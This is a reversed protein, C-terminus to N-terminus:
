ELSLLIMVYKQVVNLAPQDTRFELVFFKQHYPIVFSVIQSYSPYDYRDYVYKCRQLSDEYKLILLTCLWKPASIQCILPRTM